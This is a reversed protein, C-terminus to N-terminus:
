GSDARTQAYVYFAKLRMSFGDFGKVGGRSARADTLPKTLPKAFGKLASLGKCRQESRM